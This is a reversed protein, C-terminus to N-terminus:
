MDKIEAITTLIFSDDAEEHLYDVYVGDGFTCVLKSEKKLSYLRKYGLRELEGVIVDINNEVVIKMDKFVTLNNHESM